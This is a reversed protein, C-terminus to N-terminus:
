QDVRKYEGYNHEALTSLFTDFPNGSLGVGIGISNITM